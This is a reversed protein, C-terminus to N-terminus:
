GEGAFRLALEDATSVLADSPDLQDYWTNLGQTVRKANNADATYGQSDLSKRISDMKIKKQSPAANATAPNRGIGSTTGVGDAKAEQEGASKVAPITPPHMTPPMQTNATASVAHPAGTPRAVGKSDYGRQGEPSSTGDANYRFDGTKATGATSTTPKTGPPLVEELRSIVREVLIDLTKRSIMNMGIWGNQSLANLKLTHAFVFGKRSALRM